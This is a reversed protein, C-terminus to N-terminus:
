YQNVEASWLYRWASMLVLGFGIELPILEEGPAVGVPRHEIFAATLAVIIRLSATTVFTSLALTGAALPGGKQTEDMNSVDYHGNRSSFLFTGYYLGSLIWLISLLAGESFAPTIYQLQLRHCVCISISISLNMLLFVDYLVLPTDEIQIPPLYFLNPGSNRQNLSSLQSWRFRSQKSTGKDEDDNKKEASSIKDKSILDDIENKKSKISHEYNRQKAGSHCIPRLENKSLISVSRKKSREPTVTLLNISNFAAVLSLPQILQVIVILLAYKM